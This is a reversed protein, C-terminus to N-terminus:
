CRAFRPLHQVRQFARAYRAVIVLLIDHTHPAGEKREGAGKRERSGRLSTLTLEASGGAAARLNSLKSCRIGDASPVCAPPQPHNGVAQRRENSVAQRRGVSGRTEFTHQSKSVYAHTHQRISANASTHQRISVYASTHQRMSVYASTHPRISLYSTHERISVCASAHRM